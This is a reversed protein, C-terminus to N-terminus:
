QLAAIAMEIAGERSSNSAIFRGNHCFIAGNVGCAASLAEGTLGAWAEPLDKRANFSSLSVPVTRVRYNQLNDEPNIIFLVEPMEATVVEEWALGPRPMVIIRGEALKEANRVLEASQLVEGLKIVERLLFNGAFDVADKFQNVRAAYVLSEKEAAEGQAAAKELESYTPNFADIMASFGYHGEASHGEGTDSKDVYQMFLHDVEAVISLIEGESLEPLANKVYAAGFHAWVLGAAAYRGTSGTRALDFGKQHHDFRGTTSDYEGGVDVLFNAAAWHEPERSRMVVFTQVDPSDNLAAGMIIAVATADDAHFAGDHTAIRIHNDGKPSPAAPLSFQTSPNFKVTSSPM